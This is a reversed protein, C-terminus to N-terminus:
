KIVNYCWRFVADGDWYKNKNQNVNVFVYGWFRLRAPKELWRLNRLKRSPDTATPQQPHAPVRAPTGIPDQIKLIM